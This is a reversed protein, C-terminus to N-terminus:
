RTWSSTSRIFGTPTCTEVSPLTIACICHTSSPVGVPRRCIRTLAARRCVMHQSAHTRKHKKKELLLRCVLDSHSQLESTHEESREFLSPHLCVSSCLCNEDAKTDCLSM